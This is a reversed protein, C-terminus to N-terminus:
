CVLGFTPSYFFFCLHVLYHYVHGLGYCLSQMSSSRALVVRDCMNRRLYSGSLSSIVEVDDVNLDAKLLGEQMLSYHELIM